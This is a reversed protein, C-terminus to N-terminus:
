LTRDSAHMLGELVGNTRGQLHDSEKILVFWLEKNSRFSYIQVYDNKQLVGVNRLMVDKRGSRLAYYSNKGM